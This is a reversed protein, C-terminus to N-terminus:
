ETVTYGEETIAAKVAELPVKAPDRSFSVTGNKLSVEVDATGAIATVAETVARTCHECSMGEVKLITKEM